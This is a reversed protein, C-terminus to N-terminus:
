LKEQRTKCDMCRAVYPLTELRELDIPKGCSECQGYKGSEIRRLAADVESLLQQTHKQLVLNKEQEFLESADDAMHNGLGGHESQTDDFNALARLRDLEAELSAHEAELQERM